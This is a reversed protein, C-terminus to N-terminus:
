CDPGYTEDMYALSARIMDELVGMDIKELDTVYLCSKGIKHKGLRALLDDYAGFGSMIYVSMNGKRPSFGTRFFDGERGSEYKYHYDGFGIISGGWMKPRKGTIKKMLKLLTKADRRRKDDDIADIFATVSATTPVTKNASKKTGTM